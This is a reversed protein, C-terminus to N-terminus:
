LGIISAIVRPDFTSTAVRAKFERGFCLSVFTHALFSARSDCKMSELTYSLTLSHIRVSGLSSGSQPTPTGISKQIKLSFNYPDFGM